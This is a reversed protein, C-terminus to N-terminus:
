IAKSMIKCDYNRFSEISVIEWGHIAFFKEQDFTTVYLNNMGNEKALTEISQLLSEGIPADKFAMRIYIGNLWPSLEPNTELTVSVLTAAGLVTEEETIILTHKTSSGELGQVLYKELKQRNSDDEFKKWSELLFTQIAEKWQPVNRLLQTAM